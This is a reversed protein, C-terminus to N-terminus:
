YKNFLTVKIGKHDFGESIFDIYEIKTSSNKIFAHDIRVLNGNLNNRYSKIGKGKGHNTFGISELLPFNRDGSKFQIGNVDSDTRYGTNFDGVILDIETLDLGLLKDMAQYHYNTEAPIHVAIIHINDFKILAIRDKNRSEKSEFQIFELQLEFKSLINLGSKNNSLYQFKYDKFLKFDFSSAEALIILDPKDKFAYELIDLQNAKRKKCNQYYVVCTKNM